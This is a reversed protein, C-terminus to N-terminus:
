RVPSTSHMTDLGVKSGASGGSIRSPSLRYSPTYRFRTSDEVKAGPETNLSTVVAAARSCSSPVRSRCKVQVPRSSSSPPTIM